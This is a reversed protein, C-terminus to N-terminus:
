KESWCALENGNPDTFHFRRGGPFAFIDKVISGGGSKVRERTAELDDAYLVVLAAGAAASSHLGARHFGGDLGGDNFACYDPGYDVFKWGFVGAYFAKAADIDAAPFEIYDIRRDTPM